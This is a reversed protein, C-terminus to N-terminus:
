SPYLPPLQYRETRKQIAATKKNQKRIKRVVKILRSLKISGSNPKASFLDNQFDQLPEYLEPYDKQRYLDEITNIESAKIIHNAWQILTEKIEHANANRFARMLSRYAISENQGPSRILRVHERWRLYTISIQSNTKTVLYRILALFLLSFGIIISARILTKEINLYQGQAQEDIMEQSVLPTAALLDEIPETSPM